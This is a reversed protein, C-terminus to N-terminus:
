RQIRKHFDYDQSTPDLAKLYQLTPFVKLNTWFKYWGVSELKRQTQPNLQVLLEIGWGRLLQQKPHSIISLMLGMLLNGDDYDEQNACISFCKKVSHSLADFFREVEVTKEDFGLEAFTTMVFLPIDFAFETEVFERDGEHAAVLLKTLFDLDTYDM